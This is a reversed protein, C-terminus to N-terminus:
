FIKKVKEKPKVGFKLQMFSHNLYKEGYSAFQSFEDKAEKFKTSCAVQEDDPYTLEDIKQQMENFVISVEEKMIAMQLSSQFAMQRKSITAKKPRGPKRKILEPVSPQHVVEEKPEEKVSLTSDLYKAMAVISVLVKDSHPAIDFPLKKASSLNYIHGKSVQLLKAIDEVNLFLKEPFM